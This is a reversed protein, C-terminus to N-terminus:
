LPIHHIQLISKWSKFVLEIQWRMGYFQKICAFDYNEKSLNTAWINLGSRFKYEKSTSFGKGKNFKNKIRLRSNKVEEPIEEILV